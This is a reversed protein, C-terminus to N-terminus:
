SYPRHEWYSSRSFCMQKVASLWGCVGHDKACHLLRTELGGIELRSFNHRPLGSRLQQTGCRWTPQRWAEQSKVQLLTLVLCIHRPNLTGGRWPSAKFKASACKGKKNGETLDNPDRKMWMTKKWVIHRPGLRQVSNVLPVLDHEVHGSEQWDCWVVRLLHTSSQASLHRKGSM